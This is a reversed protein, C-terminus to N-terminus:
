GSIKLYSAARQRGEGTQFSDMLDTWNHLPLSILHGPQELLIKLVEIRDNDTDMESLINKLDYVGISVSALQGAAFDKILQLKRSETEGDLFDLLLSVSMSEQRPTILQKNVYVEMFANQPLTLDVVDYCAGVAWKKHDPGTVQECNTDVTLNQVKLEDPAADFTINNLMPGMLSESAVDSKAVIDIRIQGIPAWAPSVKLDAPGSILIRRIGQAPFTKKLETRSQLLRTLASSDQPGPLSQFQSRLQDQLEPPLNKTMQQFWGDLDTTQAQGFGPAILTLVCLTLNVIFCLFHRYSLNM